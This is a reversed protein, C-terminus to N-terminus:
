RVIGRESRELFRVWQTVEKSSDALTSLQELAHALTLNSRYLIRYAKKLVQITELTFHHRKLGETNLGHPKADYGAVM